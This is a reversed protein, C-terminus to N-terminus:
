ARVVGGLFAIWGMLLFEEGDDLADGFPPVQQEVCFEHDAGVVFGEFGKHGM